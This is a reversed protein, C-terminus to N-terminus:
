ASPFRPGGAAGAVERQMNAAALRLLVDLEAAARKVDFRVSAQAVYAVAAARIRNIDQLMEAMAQALSLPDGPQVCLAPTERIVERLGPCGSAVLPCGAVLAEMALLGCAEWRSPMLVCDIEGLIAAVDRTFGTFRFYGDLRRVSVAERLERVFGGDSIVRVEFRDEPRERVLIGVADILVDFGKQPVMRGLFGFIFPGETRRSSSKAAAVGRFGEVPIGHSVVSVCTRRGVLPLYRLLNERADETPCHVIDARAVLRELIRRRIPGFPPGFQEDRFVDHSTLVHPVAYPANVLAAIAGATFGHSHVLDYAGSALARAAAYLLRAGARDRSVEVLRANQPVGARLYPSEISEPALITFRYRESPLAGYTYRLYTRIGGVAHRAISLVRIPRWGSSSLDSSESQTLM